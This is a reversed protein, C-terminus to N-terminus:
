EKGTEGCLITVQNQEIITLAEAKFKHMPLQQRSQYMRHYAPTSIKYAWIDKLQQIKIAPDIDIDNVKPTTRGSDTNRQKFNRTLVVDDREAEDDQPGIATRVLERLQKFNAQDALEIELKKQEAFLLYVDKFAPPLRMYAKEEKISTSFIQFLAFTAIYAKSQDADPTAITLMTFSTTRPTQSSAVRQANIPLVIDQDKSWSITIAHRNSFASESVVKYAFSARSDRSV